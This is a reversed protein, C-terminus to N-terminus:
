VVTAPSSGQSPTPSNSDSGTTNVPDAAKPPRPLNGGM